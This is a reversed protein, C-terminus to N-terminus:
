PTPGSEGAAVAQVIGAEQLDALFEPVETELREREVEYEGALRAILEPVSTGAECLEVIRMGVGNLVLVEISDQNLVVGEERIRRHRIDPRLRYSPNPYEM